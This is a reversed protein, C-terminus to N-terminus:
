RLFGELSLRKEGVIEFAEYNAEGRKELVEVVV